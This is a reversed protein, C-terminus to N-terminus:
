RSSSCAGNPDISTGAPAPSVLSACSRPKVTSRAGDPDISTGEDAWFAQLSSWLRHVFNEPGKIALPASRLGIAPHQAAAAAWPFLLLTSVALAATRRRIPRSM